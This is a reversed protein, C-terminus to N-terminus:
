ECWGKDKAKIYLECDGLKCARGWDFCAKKMMVNGRTSYAKALKPNIKIATNLDFIAQDYNGKKYFAHGRDRFLEANTPNIKIAKSFDSIM